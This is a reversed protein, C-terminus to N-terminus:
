TGSGLGSYDTNTAGKVANSIQEYRQKQKKNIPQEKLKMLINSLSSNIDSLKIRNRNYDDLKNWNNLIYEWSLLVNEELEEDSLESNKKICQKKLFLIISKMAKGQMGDMKSGVGTHESCFKDYQEIMKSYLTNPKPKARKPAVKPESKTRKQVVKPESVENLIKIHLSNSIWKYDMELGSVSVGYDVIRKLTSKPVKYKSAIEYLYIVGNNDEDLRSFIYAWVLVYNNPKSILKQLFKTNL